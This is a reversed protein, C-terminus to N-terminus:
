FITLILISSGIFIILTYSINWAFCQFATIGYRGQMALNLGSIPGGTSGVSWTVLFILALMLPDPDLPLLIASAAVISVIAHVGVFALLLLVGMVIVAIAPTFAEIGFTLPAQGIFVTIGTAMVGTSFFLALEGYIDPLRNQSFEQITKLAPLLHRQTTLVVTTIGVSLASVLVLVSLHPLINHAILVCVVMLSPVWLARFNVPYGKFLDLNGNKRFRHEAWTITLGLVTIPISLPLLHTWKSGPAYLLCTGMAAFFPSWLAALAFGRQISTATTRDLRGNKKLADGFIIFASINIVSAFLHVGGITQWFAKTGTQIVEPTELRTDTILRLFSVASLLSILLHNQTIFKQVPIERYGNIWALGLGIFGVSFFIGCQIHQIRSMRPWLLIFAVLASIGSIWLFDQLGSAGLVSSFIMVLILVGAVQQQPSNRSVQNM